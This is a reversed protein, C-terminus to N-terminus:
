YFGFDEYLQDLKKKVDKSIKTEHRLRLGIITMFMMPIVRFIPMRTNDNHTWEIGVELPAIGMKKMHFLLAVDFTRNTIRVRNVLEKATHNTFAKLGCQTDKTRVGLLAFVIYHFVRSSLRNFFPEQKVVNSSRMWRSGVVSKNKSSVLSCVHKIEYWPSSGDADTYCVIKGSSEKFGELVAGGKGLRKNFKLIRVKNGANSAVEPTKDSGDFVVIIEKIEPINGELERITSGIRDEENYAPIIVSIDTLSM